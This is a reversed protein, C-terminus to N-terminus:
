DLNHNLSIVLVDDVSPSKVFYNTTEVRRYVNDDGLQRSILSIYKEGREYAAMQNELCFTERFSEQDDPHLTSVAHDICENFKGASVCSTRTFNEYMMMYYSNRTLNVYLILPYRIYIADLLLQTASIPSQAYLIDETFEETEKQKCMEWFAEQPMPKAFLFGQILECGCTRLFGVQEETEVGEAVTVLKLRHAFDLISELVIREKEDECNRSLLTRDIKLVDISVDKVTSLSSLGCGFDDIAVTFGAARISNIFNDLEQAASFVMASETIEVEIMKHDIEYEDVIKCLKKTFDKDTIHKRSFNVSVKVCPIKREMQERLSICIERLMYWDLEWIADSQELQPIYEGPMIITGDDKIWRALAEASVIKGTVADFQPQFYAKIERKAYAEQVLDLVEDGFKSM